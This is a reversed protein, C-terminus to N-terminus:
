LEWLGVAGVAGVAGLAGCGECSGSGLAGCSGSGKCISKKSCRLITLILVIIVNKHKNIMPVTDACRFGIAAKTTNSLM